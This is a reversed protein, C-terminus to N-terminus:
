NSFNTLFKLAITKIAHVNIQSLSFHLCARPEPSEYIGVDPMGINRQRALKTIETMLWSEADNDPKDILRINFANGDM